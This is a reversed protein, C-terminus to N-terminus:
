ASALRAKPGPLGRPQVPFGDGKPLPRKGAVGQEVKPRAAADLVGLLQGARQGAELNVRGLSPVSPLTRSGAVVRLLRLAESLSVGEAQAVTAFKDQTDPPTEGARKM